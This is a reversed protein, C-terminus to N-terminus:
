VENTHIFCLFKSAPTFKALEILRKGAKLNYEAFLQSHQPNSSAFDSDIRNMLDVTAFLFVDTDAADSSFKTMLCAVLKLLLPIRDMVPILDFAAIQIAEHLFAVTSGSIDVLYERKAVDIALAVDTNDSPDYYKVANIVKLDIRSAFCSLIQLGKSVNSPLRELKRSLVEAVGKAIPKRRIEDVNWEWGHKESETLLKEALM